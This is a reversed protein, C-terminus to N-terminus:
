DYYYENKLKEKARLAWEGGKKAVSELQKRALDKRDQQEYLEARLFMAKVRLSSVVNENIVKSLALMAQEFDNLARFCTSKQIWTDLLEDPNWFSSGAAEEAKDFHQLAEKYAEKRMAIMGKEYWAMALHYRHTVKASQYRQLMTNFVAEARDDQRNKLYARALGYDSEELLFPYPNEDQIKALLPNSPNSLDSRLKDFVEIAYSLYIERKAGLSEEAIQYDALGKELIIRYYLHTYYPLHNPPIKGQAYLKEFLLEGEHFQEIATSLNKRRIWRGEPTKRDRLYDLGLLYHANIAYLSDPFRKLVGQLHHMAIKDGQLYQRYPYVTFYAEAAIPSELDNEYAYLKYSRVIEPDKDLGQASSAARFWAESVEKAKPYKKTLEIFTTEAEQLAGENQLVIGLLLLMTPDDATLGSNLLEKAKLLADPSNIQIYSLALHKKTQLEQDKTFSALFSLAQEFNDKANDYLGEKYANIGRMLWGEGLYPSDKLDGQTLKQYMAERQAYSPASAARLLLAKAQAEKSKIFDPNSLVAEAQLFAANDNLKAARTFYYQGLALYHREIPFQEILTKFVQEGKNFDDPSVNQSIYSLGLFYLADAYWISSEHNRKPLSKELWEIAERFNQMQFEIQGRMFAYEFHKPHGPPLLQELNVIRQEALNRNGKKLAIQASYLRASIFSSPNDPNLSVELLHKEAQDLLGLEFFNIGLRLEADERYSLTTGAKALYNQFISAAKRRQGLMEYARGLFYSNDEEGNRSEILSVVASPRNAQLYAYALESVIKPDNKLAPNQLAKEFYPISKEYLSASFYEKAYDLSSKDECYVETFLGSSAIIILFILRYMGFKKPQFNCFVTKSPIFCFPHKSWFNKKAAM